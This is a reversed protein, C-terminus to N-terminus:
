WERGTACGYTFIREEERIYLMEIYEHWIVVELILKRDKVNWALMIESTLLM